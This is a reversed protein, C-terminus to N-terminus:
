SAQGKNAFRWGEHCFCDCSPDPTRPDFHGGRVQGGRDRYQAVAGCTCVRTPTCDPPAPLCSSETAM